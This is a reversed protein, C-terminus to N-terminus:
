LIKIWKKNKGFNIANMVQAELMGQYDGNPVEGNHYLEAIERIKDSIDLIAKVEEMDRM